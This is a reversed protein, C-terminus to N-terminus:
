HFGSPHLSPAANARPRHRAFPLAGTPHLCPGLGVQAKSFVRNSFELSMNKSRKEGAALLSELQAVQLRPLLGCGAPPHAGAAAATEGCTAQAAPCAPLDVERARVREEAKAQVEAVSSPATRKKGGAM